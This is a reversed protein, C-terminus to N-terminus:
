WSTAPKEPYLVPEDTHCSPHVEETCDILSFNKDMCLYIQQLMQVKAHNDYYCYLQPRVGIAAEIKNM